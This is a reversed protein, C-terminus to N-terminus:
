QQATSLRAPQDILWYQFWSRIRELRDVLLWPEGTRSLNHGSRPYRVLEVPVNRKKLAMFWQENDSIPTRYDNEGMLILTPAKVHEVYSNPSLRRYIDRQEWPAGLFAHETLGQADSSGYWSEWNTISRATVAAAWRDPVTSTLWNTMFGGYSGGSIGVRKSDADPYKALAADVGGLYDEKDVEGWKGRTAWQFAHGYGTSGRPNTYLVFFGAASLMQFQDFWNTGYAGYPGGHIKLIIPYKKGPTYGLPKMVWGEIQTGDGVKWALREAPVLEVQSLWRDNFSTARNEASGDARAVFAESPHMVDNAVYAMLSGDKSSSFGALHRPGTTVQRATKSQLSVEFLHADGGIGAAFRVSRGDATWSPPGPINDWTDTLNQPNGRFAGDVAIEVTMIDPQEGQKPTHLFALRTGDPSVAPQSNSGGTPSIRRAAGGDRSVAYIAMQPERGIADRDQLEDGTFFITRGDASWAVGSVDFAGKTLQQPDGGQAPVVFVQTKQHIAPDPLFDLTGDRKYHMSTIVRGDFRKVDLTHSRADAAIWGEHPPRASEGDEGRSPSKEFAIWKGDRSWVPAATVGEIHHAAGAPEALNVFWTDNSDKARRSNFSLVSGDPSWRPSSSDDTPDTVRFPARAPSGNKVRDIWVERHRRNEKEVVTTVTFAVLDGPPSLATDSVVIEKYYDAPQLGQKQALVAVPVLFFVCLAFVARRDHLSRARM